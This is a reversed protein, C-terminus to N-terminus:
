TAIARFSKFGPVLSLQPSGYMVVKIQFSKFISSGTLGSTMHDSTIGRTFRLDIYDGDSNSVYQSTGTVGGFKIAYDPHIVMKEFPINNFDTNDYTNQTRAYVRIESGVPLRASMYVDLTDSEFGEQLNVRKTLYRTLSLQDSNTIGAISPLKEYL